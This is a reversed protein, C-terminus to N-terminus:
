TIRQWAKVINYIKDVEVKEGEIAVVFSNRPQSYHDLEFKVGNKEYIKRMRKLTNDKKYNLFDLMSQVASDDEFILARTERREILDNETLKDDKFDLQKIIKENNENITLRAMTKNKNRYIIRTQNFEEKLKYNNKECFDIFPQWDKVEFSYEYEIM